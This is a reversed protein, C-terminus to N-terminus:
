TWTSRTCCHSASGASLCEELTTSTKLDALIKNYLELSIHENINPFVDPDVRPCFVCVRNCLGTINFEVESFAPSGDPLTGANALHDNQFANKRAINPDVFSMDIGKWIRLKTQTVPSLFATM